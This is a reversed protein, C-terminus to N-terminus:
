QKPSLWHTTRRTETRQQGATLNLEKVMSFNIFSSNSGSDLLISLRVKKREWLSQYRSGCGSVRPSEPAAAQRAYSLAGAGATAQQGLYM